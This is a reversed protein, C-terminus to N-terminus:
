VDEELDDEEITRSIVYSEDRWKALDTNRCRKSCFPFEPEDEAIMVKCQPNSCKRMTKKEEKKESM